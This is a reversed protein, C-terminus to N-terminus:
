ANMFMDTQRLQEQMERPYEQPGPMIGLNKKVFVAVNRDRLMSIFTHTHGELKTRAQRTTVLSNLKTPGTLGGLIVWQIGQRTIEDAMRENLLWDGILPEISLFKRDTPVYRCFADFRATELAEHPQWGSLSIGLWAGAEALLTARKHANPAGEPALIAKTLVMYAHWPAAKMADAVLSAVDDPSFPFEYGPGPQWDWSGLLDCMSGAFIRAPTKLRKPEDLRLPHFTPNFGTEKYPGRRMEALRRAYCYWCGFKCGTGPNWSRECWDILTKNM